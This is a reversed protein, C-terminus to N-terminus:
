FDRFHFIQLKLQLEENILLVTFPQDQTQRSNHSSTAHRTDTIHCELSGLKNPGSGNRKFLCRCLIVASRSTALSQKDFLIKFYFHSNDLIM